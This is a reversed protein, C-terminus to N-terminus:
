LGDNRPAAVVAEFAVVPVPSEGLAPHTNIEHTVGAVVRSSERGGSSLPAADTTTTVRRSKMRYMDQDARTLVTIPDTGPELVAMGISMGVTAVIPGPLIMPQDTARLIRRALREFDSNADPPAVIVFEDGGIRAVFDEGRLIRKLRRAVQVLVADGADHGHADNVAKFGNLDCFVVSAGSGTMRALHDRLGSRNALGTLDDTVSRQRVVDSDNRAATVDVGICGVEAPAEALRSISWAIVRRENGSLTRLDHEHTTSVDGRLAARLEHRFDAVERPVVAEVADRGVLEHEALGLAVCAAPNAAVIRQSADVLLALAGACAWLREGPAVRPARVQM